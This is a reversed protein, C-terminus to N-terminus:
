GPFEPCYDIDGFFKTQMWPHLFRSKEKGYKKPAVVLTLSETELGRQM